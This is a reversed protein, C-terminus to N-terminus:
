EKSGEKKEAEGGVVLRALGRLALTVVCGLLLALALVGGDPEVDLWMTFVLMLVVAAFLSFAIFGFLRM